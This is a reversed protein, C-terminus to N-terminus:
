TRVQGDGLIVWKTACLEELGMPGYAHLKTTSIGIEAGLGLEGGDNFRTSANVMVCSADVERLWRMAHGHDSTVISETHRSGWRAVHAVAEDFSGVIRVALIMDLYEAAWDDDTAAQAWPLLSRTQECARLEVGAARLREGTAPLFARAVAGHVLLTEMANCVGPRQVKANYAIREAMSVDATADVFVHCVGKYHQIVPVRAHETVFRILADGGRPIVLDIQETLTVLERAAERDTTPVFTVAAQPLGESELAASWTRAIAQNSAFAERGGRLICANGSKLCLAAADATVNPRSEYIIAVVGLPVKMRGALLDNPLRRMNSIAGVPDPLTAVAEVARAMADIRPGDLRLRDVMAASLGAELAASVDAANADLIAARDDERLRVAVGRLVADKRARELSALVRSARKAGEALELMAPRPESM